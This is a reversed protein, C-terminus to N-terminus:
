TTIGPTVSTIVNELAVTVAPGSAGNALQIADNIAIRIGAQSEENASIAITMNVLQNMVDTGGAAIGYVIEASSLAGSLVHVINEAPLLDYDGNAKNFKIYGM